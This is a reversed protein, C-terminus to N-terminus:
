GPIGWVYVSGLADFFLLLRGDQTWDVNIIERSPVRLDARGITDGTVQTLNWLSVPRGVSATILMRSDPSFQATINDGDVEPLTSVLRPQAEFSWVHIGATQSGGVLYRGDPSFRLVRQAGGPALPFNAVEDGSEPSWVRVGSSLGAAILTNDSAFALQSIDAEGVAWERLLSGSAWDWVRVRRDFGGSAVRAGDPSFALASISSGQATLTALSVREFADWIKLTGDRGGMVLWGAQSDFAASGGYDPHGLFSNLIGGTTADHVTVEGDAAIAYLETKDPSFYLQTAEGRGTAYVLQGSLLDYMFLSPFTLVALRTGDPSVAHTMITNPTEPQVLIGLATVQTVNALSIAAGSERWPAATPLVRNDPAPTTQCATLLCLATLIYLVGRM